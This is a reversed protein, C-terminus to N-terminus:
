KNLIIYALAALFGLKIAWSLWAPLNTGDKWGHRMSKALEKITGMSVEVYVAM